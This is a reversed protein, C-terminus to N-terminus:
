LSAAGHPCGIPAELAIPRPTSHMRSSFGAEPFVQARQVNRLGSVLPDLALTERVRKRSMQNVVSVWSTEIRLAKVEMM